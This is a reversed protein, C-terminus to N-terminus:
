FRRSHSQAAQAGFYIHPVFYTMVEQSLQIEACAALMHQIWHDRQETSIDLGEHVGVVTMFGGRERSHNAPGGFFEALWLAMRGAHDENPDRFLPVMVPDAFVRTYFAQALRQMGEASGALEYLTKSHM